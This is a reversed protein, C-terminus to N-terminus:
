MSASSFRCCGAHNLRNSNSECQPVGHDNRKQQHSQRHRRVLEDRLRRSPAEVLIELLRAGREPDLVNGLVILRRVILCRRRCREGFEVEAIEIETDHVQAPLHECHSRGWTFRLRAAVLHNLGEVRRRETAEDRSIANCSRFADREGVPSSAHSGAYEGDDDIQAGVRDDDARGSDLWRAISSDTRFASITMKGVASTSAAIAPYRSVRRLRLGTIAIVSCADRMPM